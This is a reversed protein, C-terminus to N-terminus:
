FLCGCTTKKKQIKANFNEDLDVMAKYKGTLVNQVWSYMDLSNMGSLASGYIVNLNPYQDLYDSLNFFSEIFQKDIFDRRNDWKNFILLIPKINQTEELLVNFVLEFEMMSQSMQSQNQVDVIYIISQSDHIFKHWNSIMASGVENIFYEQNDIKLTNTDFGTTPNTEFDMEQLQDNDKKQLSIQKLRKIMLTKGVGELGLVLIHTKRKHQNENHNQIM